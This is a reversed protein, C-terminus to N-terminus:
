QYSISSFASEQFLLWFNRFRIVLEAGYKIWRDKIMGDEIMEMVCFLMIAKHPPIGGKDPRATNLNALKGLWFPWAESSIMRPPTHKQNNVCFDKHMWRSM